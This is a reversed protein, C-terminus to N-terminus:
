NIMPKGGDDHHKPSAPNRNPNRNRESRTKTHHAGNGRESLVLERGAGCGGAPFGVTKRGAISAPGYRQQSARTM